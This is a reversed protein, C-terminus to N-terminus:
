ARRVTSGSARNKMVRVKQGAKFEEDKYRRIRDEQVASHITELIQMINEPQDFVGGEFPLALETGFIVCRNYQRFAIQIWTPIRGLIDESDTNPSMALIDM